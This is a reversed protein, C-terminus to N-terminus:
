EREFYDNVIFRIASSRDLKKSVQFRSIDSLTAKDISITIKEYETKKSESLNKTSENVRDHVNGMEKKSFAM